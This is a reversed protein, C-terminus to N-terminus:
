KHDAATVGVAFPFGPDFVWVIGGSAKDLDAVAAEIVAFHPNCSHIRGKLRPAEPNGGDTWGSVPLDALMAGNADRFAKVRRIGDNQEVM